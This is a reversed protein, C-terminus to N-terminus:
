LYQQSQTEVYAIASLRTALLALLLDARPPRRLRRQRSQRDAWGVVSNGLTTSVASGAARLADWVFLGMVPSSRTRSRASPTYFSASPLRAGSTTAPLCPRPTHLLFSYRLRRIELSAHSPLRPRSIPAARSADDIVNEGCHWLLDELRGVSTRGRELLLGTRM